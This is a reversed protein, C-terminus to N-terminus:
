ERRRKMQTQKQHQQQQKTQKENFEFFSWNIPFKFGDIYKLNLPVEFVVIVHIDHIMAKDMKYKNVTINKIMKQGIIAIFEVTIDKIFQTINTIMEKEICVKITRTYMSPDTTLVFRNPKRNKSIDIIQESNHENNNSETPIFPLTDKDIIQNTDSKSSPRNENMIYNNIKANFNIYKSSLTHIQHRMKIFNEEHKMSSLKLRQFESEICTIETKLQDIEDTLKEQQPKTLEDRKTQIINIEVAEILNILMRDIKANKTEIQDIKSSLYNDNRSISNRDCIEAKQNTPKSFGVPLQFNFTTANLTYIMESIKSQQTKIKEIDYVIAKIMKKNTEFKNNMDARLNNIGLEYEQRQSENISKQSQLNDNLEEIKLQNKTRIAANPSPIKTISENPKIKSGNNIEPQSSTAKRPRLEPM